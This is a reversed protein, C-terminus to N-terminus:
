NIYIIHLYIENYLEIFLNLNYLLIIIINIKFKLKYLFLNSFNIINFYKIIYIKINTKNMIKNNNYLIFVKNNM